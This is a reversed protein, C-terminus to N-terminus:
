AKSCRRGRRWGRFFVFDYEFSTYVPDTSYSGNRFSFLGGSGAVGAAFTLRTVAAVEWDTHKVSSDPFYSLPLM